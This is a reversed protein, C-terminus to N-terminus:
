CEPLTQMGFKPDMIVTMWQLGSLEGFTLLVLYRKLTCTICFIGPFFFCCYEELLLVYCSLFFIHSQWVWMPKDQNSCSFQWRIWIFTYSTSQRMLLMPAQFMMMKCWTLFKFARDTFLFFRFLGFALTSFALDKFLNWSM